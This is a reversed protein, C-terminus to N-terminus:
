MRIELAFLDTCWPWVSTMDKVSPAAGLRQLDSELHKQRQQYPNFRAKWERPISLFGSSQGLSVLNEQRSTAVTISLLQSHYSFDLNIKWNQGFINM